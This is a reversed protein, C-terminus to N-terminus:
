KTTPYKTLPTHPTLRPTLQDIKKVSSLRPM